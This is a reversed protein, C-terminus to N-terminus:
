NGASYSQTQKSVFVGHIGSGYVEALLTMSITTPQTCNKIMMMMMMMTVMMMMMVMMMMTVMMMKM